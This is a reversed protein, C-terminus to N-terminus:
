RAAPRTWAPIADIIQDHVWDAQRAEAVLRDREGSALSPSRSRVLLAAARVTPELAIVEISPADGRVFRALAELDYASYHLSRELSQRCAQEGLRVCECWSLAWEAESLGVSAMPPLASAAAPVKEPATLVIRQYDAIPKEVSGEGGGSLGARVRMVADTSDGEVKKVLRDGDSAHSLSALRADLVAARAQVHRQWKPFREFLQRRAEPVRGLAVLSTIGDDLVDGAEDPALRSLREWAEQAQKWRGRTVEVALLYRLFDPSDPFRAVGAQVAEVGAPGRLLRAYLYQAGASSPAGDARARYRAQLDAVSMRFSSLAQYMRHHAISDPKERLAAEALPIARDPAVVRAVVLLTWTRAPDWGSSRAALELLPLVETLKGTSMLYGICLDPGKREVPVVALHHRVIVNSGKPMSISKPPDAFAFDVNAISVVRQGCYITPEAGQDNSATARDSTYRIEGLMLPAAGAVNWVLKQSGSRVSIQQDDVEAGSDLKAIGRVTGVPLDIVQRGGPPVHMTSNGLTVNVPENLGNLVHLVHHQTAHFAGYGAYLVAALAGLSLTRQWLWTGFTLPVRAFLRWSRHMAGGGAPSVVYAGFPFLPIFFVAVAVHTAIQTTGDKEAAGMLTAGFGNFTGLFPGSGQKMPRAFLRRNGLLAKVTDRHQRLRGTLRGLALARYVAFPDGREVAARM